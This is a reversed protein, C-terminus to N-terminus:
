PDFDLLAYRREPLRSWPQVEVIHHLLPRKFRTRIEQVAARLARRRGARAAANADRAFLQLEVIGPAFRTFEVTLSLAASTPPAHELRVLLPATIRDRDASPDKLVVECLWSGGQELAARARVVAVRWGVRRSSRLAREVLRALTVGLIERDAVPTPFDLGAAIPQPPERGHVPETIKGAALRWLRRGEAGFQSAFADEPFDAVEGLVRLGLRWLRRHTDATLPLVSIPQQALFSREEGPHVIIPQGPKARNAAVSAVFKGKGWGLRFASHSIRFASNIHTSRHLRHAAKSVMKAIECKVNRMGCESVIAVQSMPGGYLGELGDAGVFARGLEVPEVVPSVSSLRELLQGFEDDYHVPDPELLTLAPCLGIARSVTMGPKVGVRRVIPTVQWLRKTDDPALLGLPGGALEPRRAEECRLPFLPLWVCIATDSTLISM